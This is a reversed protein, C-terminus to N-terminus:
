FMCKKKKLLKNIQGLKIRTCFYYFRYKFYDFELIMSILFKKRTIPVDNYRTVKHMLVMFYFIILQIM